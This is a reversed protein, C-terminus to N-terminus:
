RYGGKPITQIFQPAKPDDGFARQLESIARSLVEDGVFTDAWVTQLLRQKPVVEGAQEALQVLVQMVKPELRFEGTPRSV